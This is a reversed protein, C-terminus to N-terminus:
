RGSTSGHPGPPPPTSNAGYVSRWLTMNLTLRPVMGIRELPLSDSLKAESSAATTRALPNIEAPVANVPVSHRAGSTFADYMRNALADTLTLPELNKDAVIASPTPTAIETGRTHACRRKSAGAPSDLWSRRRAGRRM